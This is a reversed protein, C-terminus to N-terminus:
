DHIKPKFNVLAVFFMLTYSSYLNINGKISLIYMINNRSLLTFHFDLSFTLHYYQTQRRTIFM